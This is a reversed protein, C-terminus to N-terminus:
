ALWWIVGWIVIVGMVINLPKLLRMRNWKYLGYLVALPLLLKYVLFADPNFWALLSMLPHGEGHGKMVCATTVGWDAVNLLLWLLASFPEIRKASEM